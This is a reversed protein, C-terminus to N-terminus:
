RSRLVDGVTFTEAPIGIRDDDQGLETIRLRCDSCAVEIHDDAVLEITGPPSQVATKTSDARFVQYERGEFEMRPLGWPSKFPFFSCARVFAASKSSSWHFDLWGENPIERGFYERQSLDQEIRPIQSFDSAAQTMLQRILEVAHRVCKQTVSVGTDDENIEFRAQYAIPGTDIQPDMWHLTVGHEECEHFLAWSIVNRGAYEPLPGTHLNFSGLRPAAIVSEPLIYPSRACLVIDTQLRSLEDAFAPDKVRDAAATALGMAEATSSLNKLHGPRSQPALVLIVEVHDLGKLCKLVSSASSTGVVVVRLRSM